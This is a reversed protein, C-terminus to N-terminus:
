PDSIRVGPEVERSSDTLSCVSALNGEAKLCMRGVKYVKKTSHSTALDSQCGSGGWESAAGLVEAGGCEGRGSSSAMAHRLKKLLHDAIPWEGALSALDFPDFGNSPNPITFFPNQDTQALPCDDAHSGFRVLKTFGLFIPKRPGKPVTGRM